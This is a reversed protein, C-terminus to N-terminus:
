KFQRVILEKFKSQNQLMCLVIKLVTITIFTNISLIVTFLDVVVVAVKKAM